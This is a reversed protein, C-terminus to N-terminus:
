TEPSSGPMGADPPITSDGGEIVVSIEAPSIGETPLDLTPAHCVHNVKVWYRGAPVNRITVTYSHEELNAISEAGEYRAVVHLNIKQRHRNAHASLAWRGMGVSLSGRVVM